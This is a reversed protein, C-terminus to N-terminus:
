VRAFGEAGIGVGAAAAFGSAEALGVAAAFGSAEALGVAAAFGVGIGVDAAGGADAASSMYLAGAVTYMATDSENDLLNIQETSNM